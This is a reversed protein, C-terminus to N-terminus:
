PRHQLDLTYAEPHLTFREPHLTTVSHGSPHLFARRLCTQILQEYGKARCAGRDGEGDQDSERGM